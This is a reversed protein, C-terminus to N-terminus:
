GVLREHAIQSLYARILLTSGGFVERFERSMHAQDAFGAASAADALAARNEMVLDICAARVRRLRAFEKPSLGCQRQFRRRMHRPSVGLRESLAELAAAGKLRAIEAAFDVVLCDIPPTSAAIDAACQQLRLILDNPTTAGEVHSALSRVAEPVPPGAPGIHDRFRMADCGLVTGAVGPRLRIGAYISGDVLPARHAKASPGTVGCGGAGDAARFVTLSVAGDPVIVHERGDPGIPGAEFVWISDVLASASVPSPAEQYKM